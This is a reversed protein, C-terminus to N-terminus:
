SSTPFKYGFYDFEFSYYQEVIRKSESCYMKLIDADSPRFEAKYRPLDVNCNSLGIKNCVKLIDEKLFEFKIFYDVCVEDDIM